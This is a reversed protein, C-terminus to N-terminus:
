INRLFKDYNIKSVLIDLKIDRVPVATVLEPDGQSTDSSWQIVGGDELSDEQVIPYSPYEMDVFKHPDSTQAVLIKDGKVQELFINYFVPAKVVTLNQKTNKSM